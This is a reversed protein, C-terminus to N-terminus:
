SRRRLGLGVLIAALAIVSSAPEPIAVGNVSIPTGYNAEWDALDGVSPNRQWELFDFGDVRGDSNFDGAIGVNVYEVFGNQETEGVGALIFSFSLDDELGGIQGLNITSFANVLIGTGNPDLQGINEGDFSSPTQFGGGVGLFTNPDTNLTDDTAAEIVYGTLTINFPSDNELIATGASVDLLVGLTNNLTTEGYFEVAGIFQSNLFTDYFIMSLDGQEYDVGFGANLAAQNPDYGPGLPYEVSDDIFVAATPSGNNNLEQIGTTSPIGAIVWDNPDVGPTNPDIGSLGIFANPDLSQFQSAIAHGALSVVTSSAGTLSLNGTERDVRLVLEGNQAQLDGQTAILVCGMLLMALASRRLRRSSVGCGVIALGLLVATSPEPVGLALAVVAPPANDLWGQYDNLGVRRDGDLDGLNRATVSKGLNDLIIQFDNPDVIGSGNVDAYDLTGTNSGAADTGALGDTYKQLVQATSLASDFVALDDILGEFVRDPFVIDNGIEWSGSSILEFVGTDANENVLAGNIYLRQAPTIPNITDDFVNGWVMAVHVWEEQPVYNNPDTFDSDLGITSVRSDIHSPGNSPPTLDPRNEWALGWNKGGIGNPDALTRDTVDRSYFIGNYGVRADDDVNIWAMWTVGVGLVPLGPFEPTPRIGDIEPISPVEFYDTSIGKLRVAGGIQGATYGLDDKDGGQWIGDNSGISDIAESDFNNLGEDFTWHAVPTQANANFLFGFASFLAAVCACRVQLVRSIIRSKM